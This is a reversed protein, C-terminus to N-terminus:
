GGNAFNLVAYEGRLEKAAKDFARAAEKEDKFYGLSKARGNISIIATWKKERKHWSVGRYKSSYRTVRQGNNWKNQTQTVVRLNARRNDLGNRNIHDVVKDRPPKMILRHMQQLKRNKAYFNGGRGDSAHWKYQMLWDYDGPEVIVYQGRTLPIRRFEYGYRRRRYFLVMAVLFRDLAEPLSIKIHFEYERM